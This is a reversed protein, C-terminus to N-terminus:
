TLCLAVCDVYKKFVLVVAKFYCHLQSPWIIPKLYIKQRPLFVHCFITLMPPIFM